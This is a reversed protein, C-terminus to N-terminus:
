LKNSWAPITSYLLTSHAFSLVDLQEVGQANVKIRKGKNRHETFIGPHELIFWRSSSPIKFVVQVM